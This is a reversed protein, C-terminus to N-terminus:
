NSLVERAARYGSRIAAHVTGNSGSTDTAEGAFFLTNDIPQALAEQAGDAGVKGYSYAGRSFPDSQWDHVYANALLQELRATDMGLLRGLSALGREVVFLEAKHSLREACQFPAWGTIVPVKAPMTTWWTPFWEDDSFLFSMDSLNRGPQSPPSITDWFRERFRLVLRIVKGMELRALAALKDESLPPNFRIAGEGDTAQLVALPITVIVRKARITSADGRFSVTASGRHWQIADVVAKTRVSVNAAELRSRFIEILARYGEECRFARDGEIKEEERMGKVLWHVGVLKPDAANFGSVYALAHHKLEELDPDRKNPFYQELFDAFSMDPSRDDMGGLIQLVGDLFNCPALGRDACWADGEVEVIGSESMTIPDWIERPRGHIFEAGLEIPFGAHPDRVTLIRGGIRDRAEVITVSLGASGLNTAAALGSVGAGIVVADCTNAPGM